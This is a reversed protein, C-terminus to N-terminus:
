FIKRKIIFTFVGLALNAAISVSAIVIAVIAESSVPSEKADIADIRSELQTKTNKLDLKTAELNQKTTELASSTTNLNNNAEALASKAAELESMTDELDSKTDELASKTDELDNKTSTLDNKTATLSEGMEKIVGDLETDAAELAAKLSQMESETVNDTPTSLIDEAAKIRDQLATIKETIEGTQTNENQVAEKLEEIAASLEKNVEEIDKSYDIQGVTLALTNESTAVSYKSDIALNEVRLYVTDGMKATDPLRLTLGEVTVEEGDEGIKYIIKYDTPLDTLEGNYPNKANVTIVTDVGPILSPSPAEINLVPKAATVTINVEYSEELVLFLGDYSEDPTFTAKPEGEVWSWSGSIVADEYGVIVVKGGTIAKDSYIDGFEHTANPNELVKLTGKTVTFTFAKEGSYSGKGRVTVTAEGPLTNYSYEIDYNEGSVPSGFISLSVTPEKALSTYPTENYELTAESNVLDAGLKTKVSQLEKVRGDVIAGDEDYLFLNEALAPQIDTHSTISGFEGGEIKLTGGTLNLAEINGGKVTVEGATVAIKGYSGDLVTLKGSEAGITNIGLSNAIISGSKDASSDTLTLSGSRLYIAYMYKESTM